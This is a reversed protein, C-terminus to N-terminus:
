KTMTSKRGGYTDKLERHVNYMNIWSLRMREKFEFNELFIGYLQKFFTIVFNFVNLNNRCNQIILYIFHHFSM